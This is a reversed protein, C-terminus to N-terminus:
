EEIESTLHLTESHPLLYLRNADFSKQLEVYISEARSPSPLIVLQNDPYNSEKSLLQDLLKM